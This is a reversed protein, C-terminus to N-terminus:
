AQQLATAAAKSPFCHPIRPAEGPTRPNRYREPTSFRSQNILPVSLLMMMMYYWRALRTVMVRSLYNNDNFHVDYVVHLSTLAQMIITNTLM